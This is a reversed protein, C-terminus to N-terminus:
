ASGTVAAAWVPLYAPRSTASTSRSSCDASRRMMKLLSRTGGESRTVASGFPRLGRSSACCIRAACPRASWFPGLSVQITTARGLAGSRWGGGARRGGGARGSCGGDSGACGGPGRRISSRTSTFSRSRSVPPDVM